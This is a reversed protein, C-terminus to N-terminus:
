FKFKIHLFERAAPHASKRCGSRAGTLYDMAAHSEFVNGTDVLGLLIELFDDFEQTIRLLELTEAALNRTAHQEDTRRTGALRQEGARDGAFGIHGEEGNRAGIEDFHEDADTCAAHAIHELLGLLIRGADDEDVFDIGDAAMAAGTEAAAIVFALLRQVLQQDFHVAELRIFAHDQDGGGVAGVHEIRRQQTGATEVTLDDHRVGVDDAALTDELYM